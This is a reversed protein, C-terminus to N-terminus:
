RSRGSATRVRELGRWLWGPPLVRLQRRARQLRSGLPPETYAPLPEAHRRAVLEGIRAVWDNEASPHFYNDALWEPHPTAFDGARLRDLGGLLGSDAFVENILEGSVGFEDLVLAPVGAALAELVARSSVTVFGAAQGLAATMPGARFDISRSAIPGSRALGAWLDAYPLDENHAQREGPLARVKVVPQLGPPLDALAVLIAEREHRGSPVLSQAAFIVEHGQAVHDQVEHDQLSVPQVAALYPLTALVTRPGGLRGSVEAYAARERRSHLVMLDFGRRHRVALDNAPYSIGPLGTVLVPRNATLVDGHRLLEMVAELAPGTCAVLLVDPALRRVRGALRLGSVRDVPGKATGTRAAEIQAASPAIVNDLVLHRVSWETPAAALLALAWKLYSDSDTIALVRM